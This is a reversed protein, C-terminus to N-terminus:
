EEADELWPPIEGTPEDPIEGPDLGLERFEADTPPDGAEREHLAVAEDLMELAEVRTEGQSAVGREVDHSSWMEEDKSRILVICEEIPWDADVEIM